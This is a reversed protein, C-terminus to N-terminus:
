AEAASDRSSGTEVSGGRRDGRWGMKRGGTETLPKQGLGSKTELWQVPHHPSAKRRLPPETKGDAAQSQRQTKAGVIEQPFREQLGISTSVVSRPSCIKNRRREQGQKLLAWM